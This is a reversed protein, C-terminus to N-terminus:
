DIVPTWTLDYNASFSVTNVQNNTGRLVIVPRINESFQQPPMPQLKQSAPVIYAMGPSSVAQVSFTGLEDIPNATPNIDFSDIELSTPNLVVVGTSDGEIVLIHQGDPSFTPSNVRPQADEYVFMATEEAAEFMNFHRTRANRWNNGSLFHAQDLIEEMVAEKGNPSVRFGGYGVVDPARNWTILGESTFKLSGPETEIILGYRGASGAPNLQLIVLRGDPHWDYTLASGDPHRYLEEGDKSMITLWQNDDNGSCGKAPDSVRLAIREANPSLKVPFGFDIDLKFEGLTSGTRTDKVNIHHFDVYTPCYDTFGRSRDAYVEVYASGDRIPFAWTDTVDVKEGTQLNFRTSGVFRSGSATWIEGSFPANINFGTTASGNSTPNATSNASDIPTGIPIPIPIRRRLMAESRLSFEIKVLELLFPHMGAGKIIVVITVTQVAAM